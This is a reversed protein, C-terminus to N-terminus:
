GDSVEEGPLKVAAWSRVDDAEFSAGPNLGQYQFMLLTYDRSLLVLARGLSRVLHSLASSSRPSYRTAYEVDAASPIRTRVTM